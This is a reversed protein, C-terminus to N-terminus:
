LEDELYKYVFKFDAKRRNMRDPLYDARALKLLPVDTNLDDPPTFM